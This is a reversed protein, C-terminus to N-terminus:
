QFKVPCGAGEIVRFINMAAIDAVGHLALGLPNISGTPTMPNGIDVHVQVNSITPLGTAPSVAGQNFLVHVTHGLGPVSDKPAPFWFQSHEGPHVVPIEPSHNVYPLSGPNIGGAVSVNFDAAEGKSGAPTLTISSPPVGLAAALQITLAAALASVNVCPVPQPRFGDGSPSAAPPNVAVTTTSGSTGGGGGGVPYGIPYPICGETGEAVCPPPAPCEAHSAAYEPNNCDPNG